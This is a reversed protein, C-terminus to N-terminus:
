SASTANSTRSMAGPRGFLTAGDGRAWSSPADGMRLDGREFPLIIKTSNQREDDFVYREDARIRHKLVICENLIPTTFFPKTHYDPEGKHSNAIAVLNLVRSTSATRQLAGLNRVSRDTSAQRM